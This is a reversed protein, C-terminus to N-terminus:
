LNLYRSLHHHEIFHESEKKKFFLGKDKVVIGSSLLHHNGNEETWVVANSTHQPLPQKATHATQFFRPEHSLRKPKHFFTYILWLKDIFNATFFDNIPFRYRACTENLMGVDTLTRGHKNFCFYFTIYKIYIYFFNLFKFKM